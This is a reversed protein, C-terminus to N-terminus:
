FPKLLSNDSQERACPNLRRWLHVDCDSWSRHMVSSVLYHLSIMCKWYTPYCTAPHGAPRVSRGTLLLDSQVRLSMTCTDRPSRHVFLNRIIHHRLPMSLGRFDLVPTMVLVTTGRDWTFMLKVPAGEDGKLNWYAEFSKPRVMRGLRFSFTEVQEWHRYEVTSWFAQQWLTSADWQRGLWERFVRFIVLHM